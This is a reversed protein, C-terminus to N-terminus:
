SQGPVQQWIPIIVPKQDFALPDSLKTYMSKFPETLTQCFSSMEAPGSLGPEGGYPCLRESLARM